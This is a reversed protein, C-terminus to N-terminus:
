ARTQALSQPRRTHAHELDLLRPRGILYGQVEACGCETVFREIEATEVGEVCCNLSIQQLLAIIASLLERGHGTEMAGRVFTHDLKVKRLPM